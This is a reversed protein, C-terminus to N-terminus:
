VPVPLAFRDQLQLPQLVPEAIGAKDDAGLLTTGDTTVLTQGKYKLLEPFEEPDPNLLSMINGSLKFNGGGVTRSDSFSFVNNNNKKNNICDLLFLDILFRNM